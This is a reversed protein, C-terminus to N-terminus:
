RVRVTFGVSSLSAAICEQAAPKGRVTVQAINWARNFFTPAASFPIASGGDVAESHRVERADGKLSFTWCLKRRGDAFEAAESAGFRYDRYYWAGCDWGASFEREEFDLTANGNADVGFAVEVNNSATADLEITLTFANENESGTDFVLNTSVETDPSESAPLQPPQFRTMAVVALPLLAVSLAVRLRTYFEDNKQKKAMGLSSNDNKAM